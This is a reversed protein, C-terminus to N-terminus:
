VEHFNRTNTRHWGIGFKPGLLAFVRHGIFETPRVIGILRVLTISAFCISGKSGFLLFDGEFHLLSVDRISSSETAGAVILSVFKNGVLPVKSTSPKPISFLKRPVLM